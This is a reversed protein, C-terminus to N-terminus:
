GETVKIPKIEGNVFGIVHQAWRPDLFFSEEVWGKGGGIIEDDYKGERIEKWYRTGLYLWLANVGGEGVPRMSQIFKETLRKDETGEGITNRIMLVCARIGADKIMGVARLSDEVRIGKQMHDLMAQSGSEAGISVEQVGCEKMLRCLEPSIADARTTVYAPLAVRGKRSHIETFLELSGELTACDDGMIYEPKGMSYLLEAEDCFNKPSRHRYGRWFAPTNCFKCRGTCGRSYYMRPGLAGKAAAYVGWDVTDWAPFAIEDLNKVNPRVPNKVIKGLAKRWVIGKVHQINMTALDVITREGEGFVIADVAPYNEMVQQWHWHAHFNGMVTKAWRSKAYRLVELANFRVPTLCSVGVWEPHSEDITRKVAEMGHINGDIWSVSVGAERLSAYLYLINTPIDFCPGQKLGPPNVLLFM